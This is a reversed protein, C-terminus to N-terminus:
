HLVAPRAPNSDIPLGSALILTTRLFSEPNRLIAESLGECPCNLQMNQLNSHAIRWILSHSHCWRHHRNQLSNVVDHGWARIGKDGKYIEGRFAADLSDRLRMCLLFECM